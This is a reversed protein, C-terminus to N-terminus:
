IGAQPPTSRVNHHIAPNYLPLVSYSATLQTNQSLPLLRHPHSLQSRQKPSSATKTTGLVFHCPHHKAWAGYIKIKIYKYMVVIGGAEKLLQEM